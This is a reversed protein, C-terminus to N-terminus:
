SDDARGTADAVAVIVVTVLLPMAVLATGFGLTSHVLAAVFVIAIATLSSCISDDPLPGFIRRVQSRFRVANRLRGALQRHNSAPRRLRYGTRRALGASLTSAEPHHPASYAVICDFDSIRRTAWGRNTGFVRRCHRAVDFPQVLVRSWTLSSALDMFTAEACDPASSMRVRIRYLSTSAERHKHWCHKMRKRTLVPRTM